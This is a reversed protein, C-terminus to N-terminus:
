GNVMNTSCSHEFIGMWGVAIVATGALHFPFNGLSCLIVAVMGASAILGSGSRGYRLFRLILFRGYLLMALVGFFGLEFWVQLPECHARHFSTGPEPFLFIWSGLGYGLLWSERIKCLEFARAWNAFRASDGPDYAIYLALLLFAALTALIAGTRRFKIIAYLLFAGCFAIVPTLSTEIYLAGLVPVLGVWYGKRFFGPACMALMMGSWGVNGQSGAAVTITGANNVPVLFPDWGLRQSSIRVVEILAIWCLFNLWSEMRPRAIIIMAYLAVFIAVFQFDCNASMYLRLFTSSLTRPEVNAIMIQLWVCSAACVGVFLRVTWHVPLLGIGMLVIAYYAVFNHGDASQYGPVASFIILAVIGFIGIYAGKSM